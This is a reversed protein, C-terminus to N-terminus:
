SEFRTCLKNTWNHIHHCVDGDIDLLNPAKDGRIRREMGNKSGRMVACSDMLISVLNTSPIQNQDLLDCLEEFITDTKVTVLEIAALHEVDVHGETKPFYSVLVSLVKNHNNSTSKNLSFTQARICKLTQIHFTRKLGYTMKYSTSTPDM